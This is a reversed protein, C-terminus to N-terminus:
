SKHLLSLRHDAEEGDDEEVTDQTANRSTLLVVLKADAPSVANSAKTELVQTQTCCLLQQQKEKCARM